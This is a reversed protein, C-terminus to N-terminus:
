CPKLCFSDPTNSFCCNDLLNIECFRGPSNGSFIHPHRVLKVLHHLKLGKLIYLAVTRHMTGVQYASKERYLPMNAKLPFSRTIIHPTYGSRQLKLRRLLSNYLFHQLVVFFMCIITSHFSILVKKICKGLYLQMQRGCDRLGQSNNYINRYKINM